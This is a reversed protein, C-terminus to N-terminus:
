ALQALSFSWKSRSEQEIKFVPLLIKTVSKEQRATGVAVGGCASEIIILAPPFRPWEYNREADSKQETPLIASDYLYPKGAACIDLPSSVFIQYLPNVDQVQRSMILILGLAAIHIQFKLFSTHNILIYYHIIHYELSNISGWRVKFQM